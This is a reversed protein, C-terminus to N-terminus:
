VASVEAESFARIDRYKAGPPAYLDAYISKAHRKNRALITREHTLQVGYIGVHYKKM